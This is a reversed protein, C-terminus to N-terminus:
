ATLEKYCPTAQDQWHYRDRQTRAIEPFHQRSFTLSESSRIPHIVPRPAEWWSQYVYQIYKWKRGTHM